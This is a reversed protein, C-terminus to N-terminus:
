NRMNAAAINLRFQTLENSRNENPTGRRGKEGPFHLTMEAEAFIERCLTRSAGLLERLEREAEDKTWMLFGKSDFFASAATVMERVRQKSPTLRKNMDAPPPPKHAAASAGNENPPWIRVIGERPIKVSKYLPSSDEGLRLETTGPREPAEILYAWQFNPVEVIRGSTLEFAVANIDGAELRRWLRRQAEFAREAGATATVHRLSVDPRRELAFGTIGTVGLIPQWKVSIQRHLEHFNQATHDDRWIIWALCVEIPWLSEEHLVISGTPPLVVFPRLSEEKAIRDAEEPRMRGQRVHDIIEKRRDPARESIATRQQPQMAGKDQVNDPTQPVLGAVFREFTQRELYIWDLPPVQEVRYKGDNMQAFKFLPTFDDVNWNARGFATLASARPDVAEKQPKFDGFKEPRLAFGVDGRAIAVGLREMVETVRAREAVVSEKHSFAAKPDEDSWDAGFIARGAALVANGLFVHSGDLADRPWPKNFWFSKRSVAPYYRSM